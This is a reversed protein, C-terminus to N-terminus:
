REYNVGSSQNQTCMDVSVEPEGCQKCRSM